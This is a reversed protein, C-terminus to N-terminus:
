RLGDLQGVTSYQVKQAYPVWYERMQQVTCDVFQLWARDQHYPLTDSNNDNSSTNSSRSSSSSSSHVSRLASQPAPALADSRRAAAAAAAAAGAAGFGEKRKNTCALIPSEEHLSSPLLMHTDVFAELKEASCGEYLRSSSSSQTARNRDNKHEAQILRHLATRMLYASMGSQVPVNDIDKADNGGLRDVSISKHPPLLLMEQIGSQFWYNLAMSCADSTVQHWWGEPIFLADGAQM